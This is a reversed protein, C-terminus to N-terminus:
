ASHADGSAGPGHPDLQALLLDLSANLGRLDAIVRKRLLARMAEDYAIPVKEGRGNSLTRLDRRRLERNAAELCGTVKQDGDHQLALIWCETAHVAIAYLVRGGHDRVFDEGLERQVRRVTRAVLEEVGLERGEERWPVGFAPHESADTDLHIVLLDNSQLAERHRGERLARFVMEFGAFPPPQGPDAAPPQAFAVHTDKGLAAWLLARLVRQDTVGEAIVGIRKM